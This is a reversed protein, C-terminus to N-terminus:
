RCGPQSRRWLPALAQAQDDDRTITGVQVAEIEPIGNGDYDLVLLPAAGLPWGALADVGYVVNRGALPGSGDRLWVPNGFVIVNDAEYGRAVDVVRQAIGPWKPSAIPVGVPEFWVGPANRLYSMMLRLFDEAEDAQANVETQPDNRLSVIVLMGLANARDIFPSLKAPVFTPTLELDNIALRVVRAGAAALRELRHEPSRDSAEMEGITPVAAGHLVVINGAADKIWRGDTHLRCYQPV